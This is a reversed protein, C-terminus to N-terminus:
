FLPLVEALVIVKRDGKFTSTWLKKTKTNSAKDVKALIVAGQMIWRGKLQITTESSGAIDGNNISGELYWQGNSCTATLSINLGVTRRQINAVVTGANQNQNSTNQSYITDSLVQGVQCEISSGSLVTYENDFTVNTNARSKVLDIVGSLNASFKNETLAITFSDNKLSPTQLDNATDIISLRLKAQQRQVRLLNRLIASDRETGKFFVKGASKVVSYGTEVGTDDFVYTTVPEGTIKYVSPRVEYFNLGMANALSYVATEPDSVVVSLSVTQGQSNSQQQPALIVSVQFRNSIDGAIVAPDVNEANITLPQRRLAAFDVEKIKITSPAVTQLSSVKPPSDM